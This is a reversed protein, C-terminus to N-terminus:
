SAVATWDGSEVHQDQTDQPMRQFKDYEGNSKYIYWIWGGPPDGPEQRKYVQPPGADFDYVNNGIKLKGSQKIVGDYDTGPPQVNSHTVTTGAGFQM